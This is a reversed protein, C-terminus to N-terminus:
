AGAEQDIVRNAAEDASGLGPLHWRIAREFHDVARPINKESLFRDGTALENQANFVVKFLCSLTVIGLFGLIWPFSKNPIQM